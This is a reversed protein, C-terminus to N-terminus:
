KVSTTIDQRHRRDHWLGAFALTFVALVIGLLPSSPTTIVKRMIDSASSIFGSVAGPIDLRPLDITLSNLSINFYDLVAVAAAIVFVAGLISGCVTIIRTRRAAARERQEIKQMVRDTFDEPLRIKEM